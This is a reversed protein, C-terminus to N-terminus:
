IVKLLMKLATFKYAASTTYQLKVRVGTSLLTGGPNSGDFLNPNTSCGVSTRAFRYAQITDDDGDDDPDRANLYGNFTSSDDYTLAPADSFPLALPRFL